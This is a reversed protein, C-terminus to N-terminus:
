LSYSWNWLIKGCWMSGINLNRNVCSHSSSLMHYPHWPSWKLSDCAKLYISIYFKHKRICAFRLFCTKYLKSHAFLYDYNDGRQKTNHKPMFPSKLFWYSFYNWCLARHQQFYLIEHIDTAMTNTDTSFMQM